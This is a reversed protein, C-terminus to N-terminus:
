FSPDRLAMALILNQMYLFNHVPVSLSAFLANRILIYNIDSAMPMHPYYSQHLSQM